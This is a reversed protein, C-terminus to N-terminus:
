ATPLPKNFRTGNTNRIANKLHVNFKKLRVSHKDNEAKLIRELFMAEMLHKKEPSVQEAKKNMYAKGAVTKNKLKSLNSKYLMKLLNLIFTSDFRPELKICRLKKLDDENSTNEFNQFQLKEQNLREKMKSELFNIKIDKELNVRATEKLLMKAHKLKEENVSLKEKYLACLYEIDDKEVEILPELAHEIRKRVFSEESEQQYNTTKRELFSTIVAQKGESM